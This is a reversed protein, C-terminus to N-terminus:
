GNVEDLIKQLDDHCSGCVAGAEIADGIEEISKCGHTKIGEVIESNFMFM